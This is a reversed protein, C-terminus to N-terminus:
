YYPYLILFYLRIRGMQIHLISKFKAPYILQNVGGPATTNYTKSKRRHPINAGKHFIPRNRIPVRRSPLQIHGNGVPYRLRSTKKALIKMRSHVRILTSVFCHVPYYSVHPAPHSPFKIEPKSLRGFIHTKDHRFKERKSIRWLSIWFSPSMFSQQVQSNLLISYRFYHKSITGSFVPTSISTQNMCIKFAWSIGWFMGINPSIMKRTRLVPM